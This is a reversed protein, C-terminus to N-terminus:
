KNRNKDDATTSTTHHPRRSLDLVRELVFRGLIRHVGHIVRQDLEGLLVVGGGDVRVQVRGDLGVLEAAAAAEDAFEVPAGLGLEDGFLDEEAGHELSDVM